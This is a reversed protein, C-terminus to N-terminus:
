AGIRQRLTTLEDKITDRELKLAAVEDTLQTKAERLKGVAGTLETVSLKLTSEEKSRKTISEGLADHTREAELIKGQLVALEAQKVEKGKELDLIAHALKVPDWDAM